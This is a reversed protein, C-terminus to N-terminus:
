ILRNNPEGIHALTRTLFSERRYRPNSDRQPRWDQVFSLVEPTDSQRSRQLTDNSGFIRVEGDDVEIREGGQALQCFLSASGTVLEM